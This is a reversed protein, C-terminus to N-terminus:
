SNNDAKKDSEVGEKVIRRLLSKWLAAQLVSPYVGILEILETKVSPRLEGKTRNGLLMICGEFREEDGPIQPPMQFENSEQSPKKKM